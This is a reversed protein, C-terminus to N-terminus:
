AGKRASVRSAISMSLQRLCNSMTMVMRAPRAGTVGASRSPAARSALLALYKYVTSRRMGTMRMLGAVDARGEPADRLAGWLLDELSNTDDSGPLRRTTLSTAPREEPVM